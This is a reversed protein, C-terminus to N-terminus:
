CSPDSIAAADLMLSGIGQLSHAVLSDPDGPESVCFVQLKRNFFIQELLKQFLGQQNTPQSSCDDTWLYYFM